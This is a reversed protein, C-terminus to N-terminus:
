KTLNILEAEKFISLTIALIGFILLGIKSGLTWKSGFFMLIISFTILIYGMWRFFSVSRSLENFRYGLEFDSM